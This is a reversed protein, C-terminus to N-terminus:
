ALFLKRTLNHRICPIQYVPKIINNVLSNQTKTAIEKNVQTMMDVLHETTYYKKFVNMIVEVFWSGKTNDVWSFHGIRSAHCVLTDAAIAIQTANAAAEVLDESDGENASHDGAAQAIEKGRCVQFFFAKPYERLAPLSSHRFLSVVEEQTVYQKGSANREDEMGNELCTQIGEKEGHSLVFVFLRDHDDENTLQARTEQLIELMQARKVNQETRVTYGLTRGFFANIQEVDVQYGRLHNTYNAIILCYGKGKKDNNNEKAKYCPLPEPQQYM